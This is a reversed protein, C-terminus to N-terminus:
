LNSPKLNSPKLNSPKLNFSLLNLTLLKSPQFNFTIIDFNANIYRKYSEHPVTKKSTSERKPASKGNLILNAM